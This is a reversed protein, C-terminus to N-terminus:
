QIVTPRGPSSSESGRSVWPCMMTLGVVPDLLSALLLSIEPEGSAGAIRVPRDSLSVVM